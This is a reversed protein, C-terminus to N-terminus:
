SRRVAVIAATSPTTLLEVALLEPHGFLVKRVPDEAIARGPSLDDKVILGHPAVLDLADPAEDFRGGDFFVLEFPGLPPLVDRWDGVVLRVNGLDRLRREAVAARDPDREVTVLSAATSAIAVAGEGFATGIEACRRGAALVALLRQVEPLSSGGATV